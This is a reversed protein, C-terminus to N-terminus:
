YTTYAHPRAHAVAFMDPPLGTVQFLKSPIKQTARYQALTRMSAHKVYIGSSLQVM